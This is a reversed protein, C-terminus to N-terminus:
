KKSKTVRKRTRKKAPKKTSKSKTPKKPEETPKEERKDVIQKEEGNEKKEKKNLAKEIQKRTLPITTFVLGHATRALERKREQSPKEEAEIENLVERVIAEHLAARRKRPNAM